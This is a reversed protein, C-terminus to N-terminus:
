TLGWWLLGLFVLGITMALTYNYVKGSVHVRLKIGFARVVNAPGNVGGDNVVVRDFFALIGSFALIVRDIALQYVEDVYYKAEAM